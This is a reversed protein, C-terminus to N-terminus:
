TLEALPDPSRPPRALAGLASGQAERRQRRASDVRARSALRYAVGYLWGALREKHNIGAAKRMLVLFTAQFADEADPGDGLVRRCVGLVLAGHRRVLAEFAQADQAASFRALLQEDSLERAAQETGIQCVRRLLTSAQQQAM